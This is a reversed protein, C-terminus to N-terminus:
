RRRRQKPRRQQSITSRHGPMSILPSATTGPQQPSSSSSNHHESSAPTSPRGESSNTTPRAVPASPQEAASSPFVQQPFAETHTTRSEAPFIAIALPHQTQQSHSFSTLHLPSYHRCHFSPLVTTPRSLLFFFPPAPLLFSFSLQPPKPPSSSPPVSQLPFGFFM